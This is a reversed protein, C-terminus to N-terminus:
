LPISLISKLREIIDCAETPKLVIPKRSYDVELLSLKELLKASALAERSAIMLELPGLSEGHMRRVAESLTAKPQCAELLRSLRGAYERILELGRRRADEVPPGHGPYAKVRPASALSRLHAELDIFSPPKGALMLDGAILAGKLLYSTHAVTHGPTALPEAPLGRAEEAAEIYSDPIKLLKYRRYARKVVWEVVSSPLAAAEAVPKLNVEIMADISSLMELEARSAVVVAGTAEWLEQLAASHDWHHHTLMVYSISPLAPQIRKILLRADAGVDFLTSEHIYVNVHAVWRSVPLQVRLVLVVLLRM